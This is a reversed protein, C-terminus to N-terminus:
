SPQNEIRGNEQQKKSVLAKYREETYAYYVEFPLTAIKSYGFYLKSKDRPTTQSFYINGSLWLHGDNFLLGSLYYQPAIDEQDKPAFRIVNPQRVEKKKKGQAEWEWCNTEADFGEPLPALLVYEDVMNAIQTAQWFKTFQWGYMELYDGYARGCRYVKTGSKNKFYFVNPNV